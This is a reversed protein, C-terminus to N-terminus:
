QPELDLKAPAAIAAARNSHLTFPLKTSRRSRSCADNAIARM